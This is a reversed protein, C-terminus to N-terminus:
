TQHKMSSTKQEVAYTRFLEGKQLESTGTVEAAALCVCAATFLSTLVLVLVMQFSLKM